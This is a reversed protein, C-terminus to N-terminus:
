FGLTWNPAINFSQDSIFKLNAQDLTISCHKTDGWGTLVYNGSNNNCSVEPIEDTAYLWQEYGKVVALLRFNNVYTKVYCLGGADATISFTAGEVFQPTPVGAVDVHQDYFLVRGDAGVKFDRCQLSRSSPNGPSSWSQKLPILASNGAPHHNTVASTTAIMDLNNVISNDNCAPVVYFTCLTGTSGESVPIVMNASTNYTHFINTRTVTVSVESVPVPGCAVALALMAAKILSGM